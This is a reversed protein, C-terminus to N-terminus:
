ASAEPREYPTSTESFGHRRLWHETQALGHPQDVDLGGEQLLPRVNRGIWRFPVRGSLPSLCRPRLVWVSCDCFWCDDAGDRDCSAGPIAEADVFSELRGNAAIRMARVPSYENYRSVSVASDLSPDSRLEDVGRDILEPSVTASNCFLLVVAELEGLQEAISTYGHEVVDEVLAADTALEAPRDILDFGHASGISAIEADDTSLFLRDVCRAHVAAMIPYTMLPRGLVPATNKGPVGRSGGRGILLAAIM